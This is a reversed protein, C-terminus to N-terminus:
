RVVKSLIDGYDVVKLAIPLKSNYYIYYSKTEEKSIISPTTKGKRIGYNIILSKIPANSYNNQTLNISDLM